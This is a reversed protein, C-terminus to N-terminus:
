EEKTKFFLVHKCSGLEIAWDQPIYSTRCGDKRQHLPPQSPKPNVGMSIEKDFYQKVVTETNQESCHKEIEATHIPQSNELDELQLGDKRSLEKEPENRKKCKVIFLLLWVVGEM